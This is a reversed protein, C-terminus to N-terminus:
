FPFYTGSKLKSSSKPEDFIVELRNVVAQDNLLGPTLGDIGNVYHGIISIRKQSSAGSAISEHGTMVPENHLRLDEPQIQLSSQDMIPGTDNAMQENSSDRDEEAAPLEPTSPRGKNSKHQSSQQNKAKGCIM